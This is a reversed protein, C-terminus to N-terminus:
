TQLTQLVLRGTPLNVIPEERRAHNLRHRGVLPVIAHQEQIYVGVIELHIKGIM